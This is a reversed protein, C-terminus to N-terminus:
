ERIEAWLNIDTKLTPKQSFGFSPILWPCRIGSFAAGSYKNVARTNAV